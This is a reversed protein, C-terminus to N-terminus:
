SGPSWGQGLEFRLGIRLTAFFRQDPALHTGLTGTVVLVSISWEGLLSIGWHFTPALAFNAASLGWKWGWGDYSFRQSLALLGIDSVLTSPHGPATLDTLGQLGWRVFDIGFDMREFRCTSPHLLRLLRPEFAPVGYRRRQMGLRLEGGYSVSKGPIVYSIGSLGAAVGIRAHGTRALTILTDADIQGGGGQRKPDATERADATGTGLIGRLQLIVGPNEPINIAANERFSPDTNYQDICDAVQREDSSTEAFAAAEWGVVIAAVFQLRRMNAGRCDTVDSPRAFSRSHSAASLGGSRLVAGDIHGPLNGVLSDNWAYWGYLIARAAPRIEAESSTRGM